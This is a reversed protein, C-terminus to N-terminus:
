VGEEERRKEKAKRYFLDNKTESVLQGLIGAEAASVADAASFDRIRRGESNLLSAFGSSRM